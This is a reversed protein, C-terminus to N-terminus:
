SELRASKSITNGGFGMVALGENRRPKEILGDLDITWRVTLRDQCALHLISILTLCNRGVQILCRLLFVGHSYPIWLLFFEFLDHNFPKHLRAWLSPGM